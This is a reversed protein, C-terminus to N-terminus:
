NSSAEDLKVALKEHRRAVEAKHDDCHIVALLAHVGETPSKESVMWTGISIKESLGIKRDISTVTASANSVLNHREDFSKARKLADKGFVFGKALWM